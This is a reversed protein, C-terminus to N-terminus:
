RFSGGAVVGCAANACGLGVRQTSSGSSLDLYLLTAGVVTAVAGVGAFVRATTQWTEMDDYRESAEVQTRAAHADDELSARRLEAGLAAGLCAAGVGLTTWTWPSVGPAEDAAPPSTPRPAPAARAAAPAPAARAEAVRELAVHVDLAEQSPLTFNSEAERHDLLRLALRHEGPAIEGTWPTVGVPVGDLVVTAREPSSTITVQQMGRERLQLMLERARAAVRERDPAAPARRLYDRYFALAGAVDGIKECARAINFSLAPSPVIRNATLFEDIAQKYRGKQYAQAGSEFHSRARARRDAESEPPGAAATTTILLLILSAALARM